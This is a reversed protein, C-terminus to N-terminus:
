FVSYGSHKMEKMRQLATDADKFVDGDPNDRDSFAIGVTLEVPAVGNWEAKLARNISDVKSFVTQKNAKTVRTVLVVFEKETLRCVFDVSRFASKMVDAVRCILRDAYVKGKEVKIKDYDDVDAILIAIHEKDADRFLVDFASYNYLGTLSDHLANYSYDDRPASRGETNWNISQIKREATMFKEFENAPLPRSFYYGQVIDCGLQKLTFLQEATEVGEAITLLDFAEALKIMIELIRTDKREKFANRIFQMDLKLADIPMSSLMSLSSYGSGFDDMEVKFGLRRLHEVKEIMANADETYTSETIELILEDMELRNNRVLRLLNDVLEPDYLDVRSINVSVPISLKLREKWDQIQAAVQSWVFHDLEQVLGNEEFLPIFEGPHVMGLKPHKWRVLAEASSLIPENGRVNYKPQYYVCFQKQRIATHFDDILQEALVEADHMSEDYYAIPNTLNGKVTDAAMKARDFRFEVDLSKDVTSYIGMRLWIHSEGAEEDEITFALSNLLEKYDTRHPCYLMFTDAESRCVIGGAEINDLLTKGIHKLVEEGRAKGYRDNITHFHNIDIVVADTQTDKHYLDLQMAYHYFFEKNYLGTLHDREAWHLTDRDEALEVMRLIRALIVESPPYPKSIFDIAGYTLCEVEADYDSTMVIVPLHSYVPNDKIIKLVDIGRIGPLYLDLLVVSITEHQEQVIKLAEEGTQALIIDYTDALSAKLMEQNILEDEVLLIRRKEESIRFTTKTQAM